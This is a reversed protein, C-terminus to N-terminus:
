TSRMLRAGAQRMRELAREGDGPAADVARVADELVIVELGAVCADLVTKLVCYDTALGGVVVRRVQAAALQAGLDTGAFGSYADRGPATAKSVIVTGAPLALTAAFAAGPTGAVCHAPWPGGQAKFSCHNGPHWDRTAFVPRGAAAFARLCGNLPGIVEDGHSVGLAGGPLFDNQVDVVLLADQARAGPWRDTEM